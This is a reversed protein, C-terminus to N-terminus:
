KRFGGRRRRQQLDVVYSSLMGSKRRAASKGERMREMYAEYLMYAKCNRRCGEKREECCDCPPKTNM